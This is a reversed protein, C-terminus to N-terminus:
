NIILMHTDRMLSYYITVMQMCRKRADVNEEKKKKKKKKRHTFLLRM